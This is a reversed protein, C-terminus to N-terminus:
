VISLFLIYTCPLKCSIVVLPCTTDEIDYAGGIGSGCRFSEWDDCILDSKGRKGPRAGDSIGIASQGVFANGVWGQTGQSGLVASALCRGLLEGVWFQDTRSRTGKRGSRRARASNPTIRTEM